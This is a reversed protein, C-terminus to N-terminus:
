IFCRKDVAHAKHNCLSTLLAWVTQPRDYPYPSLLCRPVATFDELVSRFTDSFVSEWDKVPVQGRDMWAEYIPTWGRTPVGGAM